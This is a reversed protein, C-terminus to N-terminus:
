YKFQTVLSQLKDTLQSVSQSSTSIKEVDESAENAAFSIDNVEQKVQESLSVHESAASAIQNNMQNMNTVSKSIQELSVGLKETYDVSIQVQSTGHSMVNVAKSSGAQLREIIDKIEYTSEQTKTALNRVEDAVVAFGRGQEGARAAEIAANLALLNTQEAIGQIVALVSGISEADNEVLQVTQTAQEFDAKLQTVVQIGETVITKGETSTADTQQAIEAAQETSHSIETVQEAIAVMSTSVGSVKDMQTDMALRTTETLLKMESSASFLQGSVQAVEAILAAVKASFTNFAASLQAIEDNGKVELRRTLDGEGEAVDRMARVATNLNKSILNSIIWAAIAGLFIGLALLILQQQESADLEKILGDSNKKIAHEQEKVMQGLHAEIKAMLPAIEARILYADMRQKEGRQLAIMVLTNKLYHQSTIKLKPFIDEQEFTFFESKLELRKILLPIQSLSAQLNTLNTDVPQNLFIRVHNLLNLWAYRFNQIENLLAKRQDNADEEDESLIMEGLMQLNTQSFPNLNKSAYDFAPFNLRPDTPLILMKDKYAILQQLYAGLQKINAKYEVSSLDKLQTYAASIEKLTQLYATKHANEKSLLYFGLFGNAKHLKDSLQLSAIILPQNHNVVTSVSEKVHTLGKLSLLSIVLMIILVSSFGLWIKHRILLSSKSKRAISM